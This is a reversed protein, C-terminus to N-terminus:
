KTLPFINATIEEAPTPGYAVMTLQDTPPYRKLMGSIQDVTVADIADKVEQIPIL